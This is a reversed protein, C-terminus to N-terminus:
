HDLEFQEMFADLFGVPNEKDFFQDMSRMQIQFRNQVNLYSM